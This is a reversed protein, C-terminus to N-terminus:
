VAEVAAQVAAWLVEASRAWAFRAQNARGQAALRVRLGEDAWLRAL